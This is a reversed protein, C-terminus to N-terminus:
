VKSWQKKNFPSILINSLKSKYYKVKKDLQKQEKTVPIINVNAMAKREQPTIEPKYGYCNVGFRVNQNKIFGGNIGPRGCDNEHGKKNKLKNFTNKQTPFLALQDASWGYSCWEAGKQYAEEIENYNALRAGFAKCVSKADCYTYNNDPIHFVEKPFNMTTVKGDPGIKGSPGIKGGPGIIKGDPGIIKGNKDKQEFYKKKKLEVEVETEPTFIKKIFGKIDFMFLYQFTNTILLFIILSIFLLMIVKGGTTTKTVEEPARQIGLNSFIFIFFILVSIFIISNIPDVRNFVQTFTTSLGKAGQTNIKDYLGPIYNNDEKINVSM